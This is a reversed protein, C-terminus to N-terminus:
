AAFSLGHGIRLNKLWDPMERSKEEAARGKNLSALQESTLELSKLDAVAKKLVEFIPNAPEKEKPANDKTM